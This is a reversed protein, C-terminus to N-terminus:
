QAVSCMTGKKDFLICRNSTTGADLAMVYKAMINKEKEVGTYDQKWYVMVMQFFHVKGLQIRHASM